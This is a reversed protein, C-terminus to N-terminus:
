LAARDSTPAPLAARDLKGNVTMPLRDVLMFVAPVMHDALRQSVFSRLAAVSVPGDAVVYAVLRDLGSADPAAVVACGSVVPHAALVHEIEGLEIRFGRVKVQADARGVYELGGGPLVRALDGSRYLRGGGGGFPDPVFREATLGPRRWYGRAVGWGGVFVEGVVGVPVPRLFGDLVWVRTGALGWGIPSGSEEEGVRHVTVHVTTETIGYMNVLPLGAVAPWSRWSRVGAMDLREGGFVVVRLRSGERLRSVLQGFATPTQSLVTVGREVLVDALREPSRAVGHPVVVLSGGFALAGWVEWVSFDFSFSHFVSWVDGRGCGLERGASRLLGVANGHSVVVGKPRGTSGSTYIM